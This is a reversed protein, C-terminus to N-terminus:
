LLFTVFCVIYGSTLKNTNYDQQFTTHILITHISSHIIAIRGTWRQILSYTTQSIGLFDALPNSHHGLYTPLLNVLAMTATMTQLNNSNLALSIANLCLYLLIILVQFRTVRLWKVKLLLPLALHQLFFCRLRHSFFLLLYISRYLIIITLITGITILYVYLAEM